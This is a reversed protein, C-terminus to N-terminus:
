ICNHEIQREYLAKLPIGPVAPFASVLMAYTLPFRLLDEQVLRQEDKVVDLVAGGFYPQVSQTSCIIVPTEVYGESQSLPPRPDPHNGRPIHM